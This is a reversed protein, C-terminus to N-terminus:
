SCLARPPGASLDQLCSACPARDRQDGIGARRQDGIGAELQHALDAGGAMGHDRQGAGGRHQRRQRDRRQRGVAEEELTEQRGFLARRVRSV